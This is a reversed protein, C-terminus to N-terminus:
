FFQNVSRDWERDLLGYASEFDYNWLYRKLRESDEEGLILALELSINEVAKRYQLGYDDLAGLERFFDRQVEAEEVAKELVKVMEYPKPLGDEDLLQDGSMYLFLVM